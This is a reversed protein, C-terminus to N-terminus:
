VGNERTYVWVAGGFRVVGSDGTGGVLATNGDSSLAVSWGQAVAEGIANNGLLKSGQQVWSSNNRIYVWAAGLFNHDVPGGVLATNGDGSLAVSQGQAAGPATVDTLKPGQQTFQALSLQSSFLLVGATFLSVVGRTKLTLQPFPLLRNTM